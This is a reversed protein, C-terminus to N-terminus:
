CYEPNAPKKPKLKLSKRIAEILIHQSLPKSIHDLCGAELAKKRDFTDAYATQAIIRASPNEKFINKIVEYGSMDPLCIDLLILDPKEKSAMRIADSGNVSFLTKLGTNLLIERALISNYEDDEVILLKKNELEPFIHDEVEAFLIEDPNRYGYNLYFSFTSGKGPESNVMIKGGLLKVLGKVISLGLGTGGYLRSNDMELQTFPNFIVDHKDKEIGPGTDSVYFLIGHEEDMKCGAEIKGKETFKFANGILNYFIQRLKLKDTNISIGFIREDIRVDFQIYIKGLRMREESFVVRLEDFFDSINCREINPQLTGTEIKSLDLIDDVIMLLDNGRQIIIKVFSEVKAKDSLINPLLESFGIIANMPTRIEHSMNHLFATKLRDSEMAKESSVVLEKNILNIKKNADQLQRVLTEYEKNKLILRENLREYVKNQEELKKRNQQITKENRKRESIDLVMGIARVPNGAEDYYIKGKEQVYKIKKQCIIRHEINYSIRKQIAESFTTEVLQKDKKYIRDLFSSLTPIFKKPSVGFIRYVEDSWFLAETNLDLEWHGVSVIAQAQNLIEVTKSLEKNSKDLERTRDHVNKILTEEHNKLEINKKLLSDKQLDNEIKIAAINAMNHIAPVLEECFNEEVWVTM